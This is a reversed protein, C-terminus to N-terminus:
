ERLYYALGKELDGQRKKKGKVFEFMLGSEGKVGNEEEESVAVNVSTAASEGSGDLGTPTNRKAIGTDRRRWAALGSIAGGHGGKGQKLQLKRRRLPGRPVHGWDEEAGSVVSLEMSSRMSDAVAGEQDDGSEEEEDEDLHAADKKDKFRAPLLGVPRLINQLVFVAVAM